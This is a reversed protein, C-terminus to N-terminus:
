IAIKIIDVYSIMELQFFFIFKGMNKFKLKRISNHIIFFYMENM